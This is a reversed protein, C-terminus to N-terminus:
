APKPTLPATAVKFGGEVVRAFAAPAMCTGTVAQVPKGDPGVDLNGVGWSFGLRDPEGGRGEEISIGIRQKEDGTNSERVVATLTATGGGTVLCDVDAVSRGTFAKGTPSESAPVRHYVTVRGRADTPLGKELGKVPFPRSWPVGEADVSFRIEHNPSYPYFIRGAGHVSAARTAPTAATSVASSPAPAAAVLSAVAALAAVPLTVTRLTRVTRVTRVSRIRM